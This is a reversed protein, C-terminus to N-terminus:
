FEWCNASVRWIDYADDGRLYVRGYNIATARDGDIQVVPLSQVHACGQEVLAQQGDSDIMARVGASGEIHMSEAQLVADEAWFSAAAVGDATDAAPGWGAILRYLTTQDELVRVRAELAALRDDQEAVVVDDGGFM